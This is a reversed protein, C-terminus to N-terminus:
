KSVTIIIIIREVKSLTEEYKFFYVDFIYM